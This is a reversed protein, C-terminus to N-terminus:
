DWRKRTHGADRGSTAILRVPLGLEAGALAAIAATEDSSADDVVLIEQIVESEPSLSALAAAISAAANHAPIVVSAFAM